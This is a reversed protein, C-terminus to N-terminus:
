SVTSQCFICCSSYGAEAHCWQHCVELWTRHQKTHWDSCPSTIGTVILIELMTAMPHDTTVALVKATLSSFFKTGMGLVTNVLASQMIPTMVQGFWSDFWKATVPFM